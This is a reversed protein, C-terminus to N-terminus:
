LWLMLRGGLMEPLARRVMREVSAGGYWVNFSMVTLEVGDPDEEPEGKEGCGAGALALVLAALLGSAIRNRM